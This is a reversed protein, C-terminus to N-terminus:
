PIARSTAAIRPNSSVSGALSSRRGGPSAAILICISSRSRHGRYLASTKSFTVTCGEGNHSCYRSVAIPSFGILLMTSIVFKTIASSACGICANSASRSCPSVIKTRGAFAPSRNRASLSSAYVSSAEFRTIASAAPAIASAPTIPPPSLAILSFVVRTTSSLAFKWADDIRLVDDAILSRVSALMRKSFACSGTFVTRPSARATSNSRSIEGPM